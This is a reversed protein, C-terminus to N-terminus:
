QKCAEVFNLGHKHMHFALVDGGRAGSVRKPIFLYSTSIWLGDGSQGLGVLQVFEAQTLGM